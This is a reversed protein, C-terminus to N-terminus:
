HSGQGSHNSLLRPLYVYETRVRLREIIFMAALLSGTYVQILVVPLIDIKWGTYVVHSKLKVGYV